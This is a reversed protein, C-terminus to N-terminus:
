RIIFKHMKQQGVTFLSLPIQTPKKCSEISTYRYADVLLSVLKWILLFKALLLLLSSFLVAFDQAGYLLVGPLIKETFSLKYELRTNM